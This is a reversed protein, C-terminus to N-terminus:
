EDDSDSDDSDDEDDSDVDDDSDDDSDSDVSQAEDDSEDDSDDDSDDNVQQADQRKNGAPNGGARAASGKITADFTLATSTQGAAATDLAINNDLKKQETALKEAVDSGQAQQAQLKLVTATM